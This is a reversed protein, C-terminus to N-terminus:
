ASPVRYAYVTLSLSQQSNGQTKAESVWGAFADTAHREIM